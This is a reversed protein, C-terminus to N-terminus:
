ILELTMFGEDDNNNELFYECIEKCEIWNALQRNLDAEICLLRDDFSFSIRWKKLLYLLKRHNSRSKELSLIYYYLDRSESEESVYKSFVENALDYKESKYYIFPLYFLIISQSI